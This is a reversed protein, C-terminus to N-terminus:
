KLKKNSCNQLKFCYSNTIKCYHLNSTQCLDGHVWTLTHVSSRRSARHFSKNGQGKWSRGNEQDEDAGALAELGEGVATARQNQAALYLQRMQLVRTIVIPWENLGSYEGWSLIKSRLWMHSTKKSHSAVCKYTRPILIHVTSALPVMRCVVRTFTLFQLLTFLRLM